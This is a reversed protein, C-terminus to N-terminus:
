FGISLRAMVQPHTLATAGLPTDYVFSMTVHDYKVFKADDGTVPAPIATGQIKVVTLATAGTADGTHTANTVKANNTVTDSELTDLDVAQTVTIFGLKDFQASSMLGPDTTDALTLIADSGTDSVVTSTAATYSLNTVGTSTPLDSILIKKLNGSDSTDGILLYDTGVPTSASRNSIMTKDVTLVTAGTVEGTHTANSVKANNIATDSLINDYGLISLLAEMRRRFNLSAIIM